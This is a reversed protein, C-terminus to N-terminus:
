ELDPDQERRWADSLQARRAVWGPPLDAVDALSPDMRLAEGMGIVRGNSVDFGAGDLFAWSDDDAYHVVLLIPAGGLVAANTIAAVNPAQDFPWEQM